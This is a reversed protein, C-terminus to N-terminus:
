DSPATAPRLVAVTVPDPLECIPSLLQPLWDICDRLLAMDGKAATRWKGKEERLEICVKRM